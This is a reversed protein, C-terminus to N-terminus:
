RHVLFQRGLDCHRGGGKGGGHRILCLLLEVIYPVLEQKKQYRPIDRVNNFSKVTVLCGVLLPLVIMHPM